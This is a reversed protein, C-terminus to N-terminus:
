CVFIYRIKEKVKPCRLSKPGERKNAFIRLKKEMSINMCLLVFHLTHEVRITHTLIGICTFTEKHTNTKYTHCFIFYFGSLLLFSKKRNRWEDTEKQSRQTKKTDDYLRMCLFIEVSGNMAPVVFLCRFTIYKIVPVNRMWNLRTFIKFLLLM